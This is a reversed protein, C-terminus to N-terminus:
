QTSVIMTLQSLWQVRVHDSLRIFKIRLIGQRSITLPLMCDSPRIRCATALPIACRYYATGVAIVDRAFVHESDKQGVTEKTHSANEVKKFSIDRKGGGFDILAAIEEM